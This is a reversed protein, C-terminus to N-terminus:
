RWFHYFNSERRVKDIIRIALEWARLEALREYPRPDLILPVHSQARSARADSRGDKGRGM